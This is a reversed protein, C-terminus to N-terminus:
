SNERLLIRSIGNDNVFKRGKSTIRHGTKYFVELGAEKLYFEESAVIKYFVLDGNTHKEEREEDSLNLFDSLKDVLEGQGIAQKEAYLASLILYRLMPRNIKRKM